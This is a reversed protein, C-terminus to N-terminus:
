ATPEYDLHEVVFASRIILGRGFTRRDFRALDTM